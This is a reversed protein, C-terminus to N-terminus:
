AAVGDRVCRRRDRRDAADRARGDRSRELWAHGGLAARDRIRRGASGCYDDLGASVTVCWRRGHNDYGTAVTAGRGPLNLTRVRQTDVERNLLAVGPRDGAVIPVALLLAVVVADLQGTVSRM